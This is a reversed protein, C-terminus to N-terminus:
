IFLQIGPGSHILNRLNLSCSCQIEDFPKVLCSDFFRPVLMGSLLPGRFAWRWETFKVFSVLFGGRLYVGLMALDCGSLM